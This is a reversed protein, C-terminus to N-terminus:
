PFSLWWRLKANRKQFKMVSGRGQYYGAMYFSQADTPDNELFVPDKRRYRDTAQAQTFDDFQFAWDLVPNGREPPVNQMRLMQIKDDMTFSWYIYEKKDFFDNKDYYIGSQTTYVPVVVDSALHWLISIFQKITGDSTDVEMYVPLSNGIGLVILSNGDSAMKCGTVDSLAFSVNYFFKGWVWDSDKNLAVLFGHNNQAPAFDESTTNGGIIFLENKPDYVFCGVKEDSSGGMYVPFLNYSCTAMNLNQANAGLSGPNYVTFGILAM